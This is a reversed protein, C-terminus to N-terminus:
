RVGSVSLSVATGGTTEGGPDRGVTVVLDNCDGPLCASGNFSSNWAEFDATLADIFTPDQAQNYGNTTDFTWGFQM